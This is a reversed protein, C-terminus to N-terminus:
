KEVRQMANERWMERMRCNKSGISVSSALLSAGVVVDDDESDEEANHFGEAAFPARPDRGEIFGEELWYEEITEELM